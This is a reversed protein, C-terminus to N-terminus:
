VSVEYRYAVDYQAEMDGKEAGALDREFMANAGAHSGGSFLLTIIVPLYTLPGNM